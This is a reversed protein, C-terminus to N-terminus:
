FTARRNRTTVSTTTNFFLTVFFFDLQFLQKILSDLCKGFLNRLWRFPFL